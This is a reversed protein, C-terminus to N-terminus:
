HTTAGIGGMTGGANVIIRSAPIRSVFYDLVNQDETHICFTHGAGEYMLQVCRECVQQTRIRRSSCSDACAENSYPHGYGIGDECAILVKTDAPIDIGALEAIVHASRGVIQPNMRGDGRLIFKGLKKSQEDSLFYGGQRELEAKVAPVLDTETIISQESACITGNDFTKSALIRRVATPIDATREIYAPGCPGVGLAPTGVFLGSAGHRVM